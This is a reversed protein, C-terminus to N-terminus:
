AIFGAALPALVATMVGAVVMALGSMAGEVEGIDLAAVTGIAHASNGCALGVAVPNQIKFIRCVMRAISSGFLGTIVVSAVTLSPVGGIETSVGIAIATTVSKPLLSHYIEADLGFLLCLLLICVVNAIIGSLISLVIAALNKKLVSVQKYMPIALAVTAPTLFYTLHSAGKDFTEYDVHFVVLFLIIIVTAILLPNALNSKLKKSLKVSAWYVFLAFFLGFYSSQALFDNM